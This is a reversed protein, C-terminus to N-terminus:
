RQGFGLWTSLADAAEKLYRVQQHILPPEFPADFSQASISISAIVKGPGSRVGVAIAQVGPIYEGDSVAFTSDRIQELESRFAQLDTFTTETNRELTMATLLQERDEEPQFALLVKGMATCHAPLRVGPGTYSIAPAKRRSPLCRLCVIEAGELTALSVTYGSEDRLQELYTQALGLLSGGAHPRTRRQDQQALWRLVEDIHSSPSEIPYVVHAIVKDRIIIVLPEYEGRGDIEVTPLDLADALKLKDDALVMHSFSEAVALRQQEAATQTSVAIVRAGLQTIGGENARYVRSMTDELPGDREDESPTFYVVLTRRKALDALNTKAASGLEEQIDGYTTWPLVVRPAPLGILREAFPHVEEKSM